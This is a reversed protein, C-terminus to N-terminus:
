EVTFKNTPSLALSSEGNPTLVRVVRAGKGANNAIAVRIGIQSAGVVQLGTVTFAPDKRASPGHGHGSSNDNGRGREDDPDLFIVETAGTFNKGAITMPFSTGAKGNNPTLSTIAPANAARDRDDHDDNDDDDEMEGRVGNIRGVIKNTNLDILVVEGSGQNTVLLLKDLQDIALARVGIGAKINTESTLKLPTTALKAATVSGGSQNAFYVTNNFFAIESSGGSRDPNVDVDDLIAGTNLNVLLVRGTERSSPETVVGVGLGPLVLISQPRVNVGLKWTNLVTLGAVDIVSITGDNQNTVYALLKGGAGIESGIGRPARGVEVLGIVSLTSLNLVSVNDTDSNAVLGVNNAVISVAAPGSAAKGTQGLPIEPSLVKFTTLDLVAARDRGREAVVAMKGASDVAVAIPEAGEPLTITRIVKKAKIDIVRVVDDNEDTLLALSTGPVWALAALERNRSQNERSPAFPVQGPSPLIEIEVVNTTRGGGTAIMMDVRGAGALQELLKVNIQQLGTFGPAPGTFLVPLSVGNITVKPMSSLDLGTAYIALYTPQGLTTVSFPGRAFTVANLIAGDRTGTGGLSFIGPSGGQAIQIQATFAGAPSTLSLTKVGLTVAAPIQANVQTPSVYFLVSQVGGVSVTVGGLTAPLKFPDPAAATTNALNNGRITIITGPAFSNDSTFSAANVVKTIQAAASPALLTLIAVSGALCSPFKKMHDGRNFSIERGGSYMNCALPWDAAPREVRLAAGRDPGFALRAPAIAAVLAIGTMPAVVGAITSLNNPQLGYLLTEILRSLGRAARVGVAIGAAV